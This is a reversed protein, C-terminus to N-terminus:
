IYYKLFKKLKEVLNAKYKYQLIDCCFGLSKIYSYSAYAQLISGFNDRYLTILGIGNTKNSLM